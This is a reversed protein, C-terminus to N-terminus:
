RSAMKLIVFHQSKSVVTPVTHNSTSIEDDACHLPPYMCTHLVDLKHYRAQSEKHLKEEITHHIYGWMNNWNNALTLHLHYTQSNLKQKKAYLFKLGDKIRITMIKQQIFKHAPSTNPVVIKV